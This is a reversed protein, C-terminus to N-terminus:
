NRSLSGILFNVNLLSFCYINFVKNQSRVFNEHELDYEYCEYFVSIKYYDACFADEKKTTYGIIRIINPHNVSARRKIENLDREFDKTTNSVYDKQFIKAGTSREQLLKVDGFRTDNFKKIYAYNQSFAEFDKDAVTSQKNGM